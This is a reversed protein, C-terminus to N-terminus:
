GPSIWKACSEGRIQSPRTGASGNVLVNGNKTLKSITGSNTDLDLDRLTGGGGIRPDSSCIYLIPNTSTGATLIGTIQRATLTVVQGSDSHNPINKVLLIVETNTVQYDNPGNKQVTLGFITGDQQTVYLKNDPGFALNTPNTLSIGDLVSSNFGIGSQGYATFVVVTQLLSFIISLLWKM